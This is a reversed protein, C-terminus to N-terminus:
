LTFINEVYIHGKMHKQIIESVMYLGLGTGNSQHKTTFYPEFIKPLVETDIGGANDQIYIYITKIISAKYVDLGEQGDKCVTIHDFFNELLAASEDRVCKEDEIYLLRLNKTHKHLTQVTM